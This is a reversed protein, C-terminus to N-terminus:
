EDKQEVVKGDRVLRKGGSKHVLKTEQIQIEHSWAKTMDYITLAAVTAGTLAEMEVGTTANSLRCECRITAMHNHYSIDVQVQDLSLPHCLPILDSTKRNCCVLSINPSSNNTDSYCARM